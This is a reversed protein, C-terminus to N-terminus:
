IVVKFKVKKGSQLIVNFLYLGRVNRKISISCEPSSIEPQNYICRGLLDYVSVSKIVELAKLVIEDNFCQYQLSPDPEAEPEGVWMFNINLTDSPTTEGRTTVATVYTWEDVVSQGPLICSAYQNITNTQILEQNTKWYSGEKLCSTYVNYGLFEADVARTNTFLDVVLNGGFPQLYEKYYHDYKWFPYYFSSSDSPEKNMSIPINRMIVIVTKGGVDASDSLFKYIYWGDSPAGILYDSSYILDSTEFDYVDISCYEGPPALNPSFSKVRVSHLYSVPSSTLDFVVCFGDDISVWWENISDCDLWNRKMQTFSGSDNVPRCYEDWNVKYEPCCMIFDWTIGKVPPLVRVIEIDDISWYSVHGPNEGSFHFRLRFDDNNVCSLDLTTQKWNFSTSGDFSYLNIWENGVQVDISFKQTSDSVQILLRENFTLHLYPCSVTAASLYPSLLYSECLSDFAFWEFVVSNGTGGTAANTTWRDTSLQESWGTLSFPFSDWNQAYILTDGPSTTQAAMESQNAFLIILVIASITLFHNM